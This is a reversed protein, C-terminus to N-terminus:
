GLCLWWSGLLCVQHLLQDAGITIWFRRELGESHWRKNLRSTGYDVFWHLAANTMCWLALMLPDFGGFWCAAMSFAALVGAYELVHISLAGVDTAKTTAMWSTQFIFDAVFHTALIALVLLM